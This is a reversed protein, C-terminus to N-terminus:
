GQKVVENLYHCISSARAPSNARSSSMTFHSTPKHTIKLTQLPMSQNYRYPHLGLHWGLHWGFVRLCVVESIVQWSSVDYCNELSKKILLLCNAVTSVIEANVSKVFFIFSTRKKIAKSGIAPAWHGAAPPVMVHLPGQVNSVMKVSVSQSKLSM